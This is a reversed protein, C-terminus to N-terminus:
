LALLGDIKWDDGQKVAHIQIQAASTSTAKDSARTSQQNLFVLLEATTDTLNSVGVVVTKAVLTLQQDGAKSRLADFLTKYQTSADGVLLQAAAQENAQPKTYDYSLVQDLAQSVQGIVQTTEAQDILARNSSDGGSSSGSGVLLVVGAAVLLLGVLVILGPVLARRATM